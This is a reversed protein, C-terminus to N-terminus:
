DLKKTSQSIDWAFPNKKKIYFDYYGLFRCLVELKIVIILKAIQRPNEKIESLLIRLLVGSDQSVVSYHHKRILWLHGNQIRRRQKIFDRLNEPGKNHIIADPIYRLRLQHRYMIAEISAEDVASDAPISDMVKRFAIVEGLKPSILAMRHHLRWLLQVAYGMLTDPKNVPVPRGGTAGLKPDAFPLVLKEIADPAPVTDGSEVILIDSTAHKMFLNIASAKGERKAQTLLTVKPISDEGREAIFQRVIEDTRDRCASSVVIVEAIEVQRLRQTTLAQLLRLINHEENYAIVGISCRLPSDM